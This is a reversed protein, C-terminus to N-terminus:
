ASRRITSAETLVAALKQAEGRISYGDAREIGRRVCQARLTEDRLRLLGSACAEASTGEFLLAADGVIEPTAGARAAVVPCGCAMAELSTRGFTESLSPQIYADASVYLARLVAVSLSDLFVLRDELHRARAIGILRNRYREGQGSLASFKGVIVFRHPLNTEAVFRCFGEVATHVNKYPYVQSVFLFYPKRVPLAALSAREEENLAGPHFLAENRGHPVVRVKDAAGPEATLLLKRSYLSNMVILDARSVTKRFLTRRYLRIWPMLNGATLHHVGFIGQVLRISNPLYVPATGSNAMLLVDIGERKLWRGLLVHESLLRLPECSSDWGMLHARAQPAHGVIYDRTGESLVFHYETTPDAEPLFQALQSFWSLLGSPSRWNQSLTCIAVKMAEGRMPELGLWKLQAGLFDALPITRAQGENLDEYESRRIPEQGAAQRPATPSWAPHM